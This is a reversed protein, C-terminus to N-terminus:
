RTARRPAQSIRRLDKGHQMARIGLPARECNIGSTLILQISEDELIEKEDQVQRAEPFVQSFLSTLDPEPAYFSVLEANAHWMTNVM